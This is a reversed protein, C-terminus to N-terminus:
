GGEANRAAGGDDDDEDDDDDTIEGGEDDDDLGGGTDISENPDEGDIGPDDLEDGRESADEIGWDQVPVIEQKSCSTFLIGM